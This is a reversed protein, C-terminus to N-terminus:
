SPYRSQHRQLSPRAVSTRSAFVLPPLACRLALKCLVEGGVLGPHELIRVLEKADLVDQADELVELIWGLLSLGHGRDDILGVYTLRERDTAAALDDLDVVGPDAVDLLLEESDVGLEFEVAALQM